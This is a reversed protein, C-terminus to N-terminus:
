LCTGSPGLSFRLAGSVFMKVKGEAYLHCAILAEQVLAWTCLFKVCNAEFLGLVSKLPGLAPATVRENVFRQILPQATLTGIVPGM